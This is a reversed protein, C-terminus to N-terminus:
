INNQKSKKEKIFTEGAYYANESVLSPQKTTKYHQQKITPNVIEQFFMPPNAHFV